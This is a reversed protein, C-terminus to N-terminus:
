YTRYASANRWCEVGVRVSFLYISAVSCDSIFFTSRTSPRRSSGTLYSVQRHLQVTDDLHVSWRIVSYLLTRHLPNCHRYSLQFRSASIRCIRHLSPKVTRWATVPSVIKWPFNIRELRLNKRETHEATPSKLYILDVKNRIGRGPLIIPYFSSLFFTELMWHVISSCEFWRYSCNM